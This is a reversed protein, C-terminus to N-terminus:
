ENAVYLFGNMFVLANPGNIFGRRTVISQQGTNADVRIIAGSGFATLDAVYLQQNPGQAIYAPLSFLGGTSVPFQAGTSPDVGIIGTPFSFQDSSAFPSPATAVLITGDPISPVLRDELWELLPRRSPRGLRRRSARRAHLSFHVMTQI